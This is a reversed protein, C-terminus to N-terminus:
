VQGIDFVFSNIKETYRLGGGAGGQERPPIPTPRRSVLRFFQIFQGYSILFCYANQLDIKGGVPSLNNQVAISETLLKSYIGRVLIPIM